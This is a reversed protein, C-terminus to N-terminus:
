ILKKATLLGIIGAGIITIDTTKKMAIIIYLFGLFCLM